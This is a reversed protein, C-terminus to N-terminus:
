YRTSVIVRVTDPLTTGTMAARAALRTGEPILFPFEYQANGGGAGAVFCITRVFSVESGAGGTGIEVKLGSASPGGEAEVSVSVWVARHTIAASLQSWAGYAANVDPTLTAEYHDAATPPKQSPYDM